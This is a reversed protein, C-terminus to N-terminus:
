TTPSRHLHNTLREITQSTAPDSSAQTRIRRYAHLATTHDRGGFEGAIAPFSLGTLERCLYMAIQRAYVLRRSRSASVLAEPELSFFQAVAHKVAEPPIEAIPQANSAHDPPLARDIADRTIGAGTLSALAAVRTLSSRLLTGNPGAREAILALLEDGLEVRHQQAHRRLLAVASPPDLPEIDTALGAQLHARLRSELSPITAPHRDASVVVQAGAGILFDITHLFEEATRPKGELFQVDDLLLVHDNRYTDKFTHVDGHRLAAQFESTFREVTTYRVAARADCESVYNGIAHLLHTKGVGGPGYVFLPNYASGPLEAVALAAAHAFRNSTGIVFSDFTSRADLTGAPRVRRPDRDPNAMEAQLDDPIEGPGSVLKVRSARGTARVAADLSTGFRREIWDRTDAPTEVYLVGGSTALPRLAAIWIQFASEPISKRLRECVDDWAHELPRDNSV